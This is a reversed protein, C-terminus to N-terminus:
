MNYAVYIPDLKDDLFGDRLHMRQKEGRSNIPVTGPDALVVVGVVLYHEELVAGTVQAVLDLAEQELGGFEVVAVLLNKWPFVACETISKHARLVSAEIDVPHYRMGRLEMAEELSGVVYLADHREGNADTLDTRRLFGLYGTRAWVAHTDGVRLRGDFHGAILSADGVFSHYGSAGHPSQVWIEGLDSDGLPGLSEPNVIMVRVGPLIKGSEMLPLSHPSGKEVLRVRDNRLARMDVYVTTPDPGSTGQLCIALNVRCGFTAGVARLSLGLDKFLKSFSTALAIRPREEAVVVCTRVGSLNVGRAKLADTQTSLMRTCHEMVSYSCFTDRIKYQSVASLWVAPNAELEAPPILVSQHGAYVGSLCWLVFGLGCHPDLCLAIQRSPYLECQIKISRCLSSAAAHSMNVGALMGVTSVSFDLYALMEPTPAKYIQFLKKKPLEDTDIMPPWVKSDTVAAAEKSKILKMLLQTTLVCVSKSTEVILKVTALTTSLNQPTPPRITVPVCGAYLCGFFAAILDLGAPYILAVHDGKSLKGKETLLVAVKEARKHLQVCTMTSAVAGKANLLTFLNQDPSTQARWQLVDSLYLFKRAQDDDKQGLDRGIAEAIRKGTVLKGLMMNAPAMEQQKERPRPLNTIAAHPCMLVGCPRLTGELFRQRTEFLDVGGLALKPLSNEPVVVVCYLAMQHITDVAQIVQSMWKFSEEESAQSRQEAVLVAREDRLITVSFAVIRGRNVVKIPEIALATAILDDASHRRGGVTMVGEVRGVVFVQGGAGVFGLLGTRVFSHECFPAGVVNVPFVEFTNKTIAALGYYSAATAQSRVCIEGVEDERCLQPPGDPRVVCAIAGPMVNGVDQLALASQSVDTAPRIVGYSLGYLALSSHAPPPFGSGGETLPRRMSVTLAEPSCACPCVAERRLGRGQFTKVFAECTAVSWPYAGDTVVLMRLSGLALDKQEKFAMLAWTMDRSKVCALKAKFAHIKQIWSLPNAKMLTYPVCVIHMMNMVGTLIGHWLGAERKFDLVNVLTEGETYGCAQTLGHCHALMAVRSVAVGMVSGDKSTKYEIYAADENADRMQPMWDKSPKSLNKSDTVFWHLKPWGKFQFIDGAPTKPLGKHCLESTLAVTVGCTGLLFGIQQCGTDKNTLPVEIPVPVLGGLLCGYFALTFAIPDSNPYVLAVRDGPKLLQDQKTGLKNLLTFAMKRSKSFLKGYALTNLVKGNTDLATLCPAKASQIGWRQLAAELASPWNSVVGLPEGQVPVMEAGEPRPRNPDQVPVELMDEDDTYLEKVPVRKPRKLTNLLQQIKSSVHSNSVAGNGSETREESQIKQQERFPVVQPREIHFTRPPNNTIDPQPSPSEPLSPSKFDALVNVGIRTHGAPSQLPGQQPMESRYHGPAAAPRKSPMPLILQAEGQKALAAKVAAVHADSQCSEDAHGGQKQWDQPSAPPGPSPAPSLRPSPMPLKETSSGGSVKSLYPSLLKQRRKEYGKRTLDGEAFERHLEALQARVEAPLAGNKEAEDM